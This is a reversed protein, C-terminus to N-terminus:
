GPQHELLLARRLWGTAGVVLSQVFRETVAPDVSLDAAAVVSGVPLSERRAAPPAGPRFPVGVLGLAKESLSAHMGRPDGLHLSGLRVTPPFGRVATRGLDLHRRLESRSQCGVPLRLRHELGEAALVPIRDQIPQTGGLPGVRAGPSDVLEHGHESSALRDVRLLLLRYLGRRRPFSDNPQHLVRGPIPPDHDDDPRPLIPSITISTALRYSQSMNKWM